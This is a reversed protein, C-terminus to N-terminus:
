HLLAEMVAKAVPGMTPGGFCGVCREITAAVAVQPNDAPAFGIFWPQNLSTQPNIEATGTKGAVSIGSLAAATGTGENVVNTMMQTMESATKPSVVTAQATPSLSSTTRGDPDTVKEVLTPRELVGKNAITAAVEAMQMPSALLQGQGIAVRGIDIPDGPGLLKTGSTNYVGSPRMQFSPYDLQPDAFFGFRSMYKFMTSTGLREGVQAFYTNVSNTLATTMPIPGFDQDGDNFLPVGGITTPSNATLVTDPTFEGSDLAASATVAKMTSGPPYVSQVARNVVPSGREHQLRQCAASGSVSNPDYSPLSVMAEVAGTRPDLAVVYGGFASAGSTSAIASGLADAAVRQAHANLTLTLDSGQQTTGELQDLITSFENKQGTLVGNESREIGSQGCTLTSYGVPNAFLSGQPYHRVYIPHKGGGVPTSDAVTVGDSTAITGRKVTQAEILPRRNDPNDKLAQADFVSWESTKWVLLGLLVLLFAFVRVIPTNM